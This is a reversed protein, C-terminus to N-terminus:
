RREDDTAVAVYSQAAMDVTALDFWIFKGALQEGTNTANIPPLIPAASISQLPLLVGALMLSAGLLLKMKTATAIM